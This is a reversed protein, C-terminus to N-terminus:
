PRPMPPRDLRAEDPTDGRVIIIGIMGRGAHNGVPCGFSYMGPQDLRIRAVGRSRPLIDLFQKTGESAVIAQHVVPDENSFELELVGSEPMVVVSPRWIFQDRPIRVRVRMFGASDREAEKLGGTGILRGLTAENPHDISPLFNVLGVLDPHLQGLVNPRALKAYNCGTISSCISWFFAWRAIRGASM